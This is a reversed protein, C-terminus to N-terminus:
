EIQIYNSIIEVGWKLITKSVYWWQEQDEYKLKYVVCNYNSAM